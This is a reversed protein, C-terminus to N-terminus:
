VRALIDLFNWVHQSLHLLDPVAAPYSILVITLEFAKRLWIARLKNDDRNETTPDRLAAMTNQVSSKHAREPTLLTTQITLLDEAPQSCNDDRIKHRHCEHHPRRLKFRRNAYNNSNTHSDQKTRAGLNSSDNTMTQNFYYPSLVLVHDGPRTISLLANAFAQNAGATVMINSSPDAEVGNESALKRAIAGRLDSFGSDPSYKFGSEEQLAETAALMAEKPPGYFPVGQGLDVVDSPLKSDSILKVIPAEQIRQTRGPQPKMVHLFSCRSYLGADELTAM